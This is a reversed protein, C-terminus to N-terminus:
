GSARRCLRSIRFFGSIATDVRRLGHCWESVMMKAASLEILYECDLNACIEYNKREM